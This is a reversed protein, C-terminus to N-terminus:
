SPGGSLRFGVFVLRALRSSASPLMGTAPPHGSHRHGPHLADRCRARRVACRPVRKSSARRRPVPRVRGRDVARRAQRTWAASQVFAGAALMPSTEKACLSEALEVGNQHSGQRRDASPRAFVDVARPSGARVVQGLARSRTRHRPSVPAKPSSHATFACATGDGGDCGRKFYNLARSPDPKNSAQVTLGGLLCRARAAQCASAARRYASAIDQRRRGCRVELMALHTYASAEPRALM